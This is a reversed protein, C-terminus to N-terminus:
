LSNSLFAFVDSTKIDVYTQMCYRDILVKHYVGNTVPNVFVTRFRM